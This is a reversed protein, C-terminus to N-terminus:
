FPIEEIYVEPNINNAILMLNGISQFIVRNYGAFKTLISSKERLTPIKWFKFM